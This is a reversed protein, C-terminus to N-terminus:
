NPHLTPFTAVRPTRQCHSASLMHLEDCFLIIRARSAAADQLISKLRDEFEGRYASGAVIATLDLSIM